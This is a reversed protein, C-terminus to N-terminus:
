HRRKHDRLLYYLYQPRKAPRKGYHHNDSHVPRSATITITVTSPDAYAGGAPDIKCTPKTIDVRFKYISENFPNEQEFNMTKPDQYWAFYKVIFTSDAYSADITLPTGDYIPSSLDPDAPSGGSTYYILAGARNCSLTVDMPLVSNERVTGGPTAYSTLTLTGGGGSTKDKSKSSCGLGVIMLLAAVALLLGFKKM